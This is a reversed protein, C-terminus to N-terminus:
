QIAVFPELKRRAVHEEDYFIRGSNTRLEIKNSFHMIKWNSHFGQKNTQKLVKFSDTLCFPSM